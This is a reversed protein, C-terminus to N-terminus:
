KEAEFAFTARVFKAFQSTGRIPGSIVGLTRGARQLLAFPWPSFM